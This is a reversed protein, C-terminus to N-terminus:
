KGVCFNSFIHDLLEEEVELGLVTSLPKVGEYLHQAVIEPPYRLNLARIAEEICNLSTYVAEYHRQSTLPVTSEMNVKFPEFKSLEDKLVEVGLNYLASLEFVKTDQTLKVKKMIDVPSSLDIKNIVFWVKKDLKELHRLLEIDYSDIGKQVDIVLLVLDAEKIKEFMFSIGKLEIENLAERYGATDILKFSKGNLVLEVEIYDRTTGPIPSTIVREIGLLANLLTSKGTNPKGVFLVKYDGMLKKAWNYSNLLLRLERRVNLLTEEVITRDSEPNDDSYDIEVELYSLAHLIAEYIRRIEKGLVGQLQENAVMLAYTSNASIIKEVAEAQTLDMKGNFFARFTFEGPQSARAGYEIATRLILDGILPNGHFQIEAMDEGTYSHPAKFYFYIVQDILNSSSDYVKGFYVRRPKINRNENKTLKKLIYLSDKGSMRIISIAGRGPPTAIAVITKEDLIM